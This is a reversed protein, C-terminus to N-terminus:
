YPLRIRHRAFHYRRRRCRQSPIQDDTKEKNTSTRPAPVVPSVTAVSLLKLRSLSKKIEGLAVVPGTPAGTPSGGSPELSVALVSGAKLDLNGVAIRSGDLLGVSRPSNDGEILWLELARGAPVDGATRDVEIEEDTIQATFAFGSDTSELAATFVPQDGTPFALFILLALCAAVLGGGAVLWLTRRRAPQPFLKTDIASKVGPPPAVEDFGENMGALRVEWAAVLRAFAADRGVRDAVERRLEGDLVGLAYEAALDDDSM